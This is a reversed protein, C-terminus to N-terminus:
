HSRRPEGTLTRAILHSSSHRYPAREECLAPLLVLGVILSLLGVGIPTGEPVAGARALGYGALPLLLVAVALGSGIRARAVSRTTTADM